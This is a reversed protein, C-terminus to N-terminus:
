PSNGFSRDMKQKSLLIWCFVVETVCHNYSNRVNLKNNNLQSSSAGLVTTDVRALLFDTRFQIAWLQKPTRYELARTGHEEYVLLSTRHCLWACHWSQSNSAGLVTSDVSALSFETRFVHLQIAWLQEPTRYELAQAGHEGYVLAPSSHPEPVLFWEMSRTSRIHTFLEKYLLLEQWGNPLKSLVM